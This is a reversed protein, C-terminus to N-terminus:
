LNQLAPDEKTVLDLIVPSLNPAIPAAFFEYDKGKHYQPQYKRYLDIIRRRNGPTKLASIDISVTDFYPHGEFGPVEPNKRVLCKFFYYGHSNEVFVEEWFEKFQEPRLFWEFNWSVYAVLKAYWEVGLPKMLNWMNGIYDAKINRGEEARRYVNLTARHCSAYNKRVEVSDVVGFHLDEEEEATHAVEKGDFLSSRRLRSVDPRSVGIFLALPDAVLRVDVSSSTISYRCSTPRVRLTVHLVVRSCSWARDFVKDTFRNEGERSWVEIQNTAYNFCRIREILCAIFPLRCTSGHVATAVCAGLTIGFYNPYNEIYHDRKRVFPIVDRFTAGAEATITHALGDFEIIDNFRRLSIQNLYQVGNLAENSCFYKRVNLAGHLAIRGTNVTNCLALIDEENDPEFDFNTLGTIYDIYNVAAWFCIIVLAILFGSLVAVRLYGLSGVVIVAILCAIRVCLWFKSSGQREDLYHAFAHKSSFNKGRFNEERIWDKLPARQGLVTITKPLPAKAGLLDVVCHKVEKIHVFSRSVEAPIMCIFSGLRNIIRQWMLGDHGVVVSPRVIFFATGPYRERAMRVLEESRRKARVYPTVIGRAPFHVVWSSFYVFMKVGGAGAWDLMRQLMVPDKQPTRFNTALHVVGDVECRKFAEPPSELELDCQQRTLPIPRFGVDRLHQMLPVGIGGRSGTVLIKKGAGRGEAM